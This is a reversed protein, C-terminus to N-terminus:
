PHNSGNSATKELQNALENSTATNLRRLEAIMQQAQEPSLPQTHLPTSSHVAKQGAFLEKMWDNVICDIVLHIRDTTGGNNVRHTLSLNLYWCTGEPMLIREDEIYFEVQENTQVPIHIRAEGSEFHMDTDQHPQIIAGAGLKMLRISTKECEFYNIVQNLYEKHELLATNKYQLLPNTIASPHLAYTNHVDGGMSRLPLASWHGQYDKHQYHLKWYDHQIGAVEAQLLGANFQVPIQIYKIV